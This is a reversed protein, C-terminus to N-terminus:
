QLVEMPIFKKIDEFKKKTSEFYTKLADFKELKSNIFKNLVGFQVISSAKDLFSPRILILKEM